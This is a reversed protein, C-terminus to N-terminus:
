ARLRGLLTELRDLRRITEERYFAQERPASPDM